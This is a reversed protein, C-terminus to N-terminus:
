LKRKALTQITAHSDLGRVASVEDTTVPQKLAVIALTELAQGSLPKTTRGQKLLAIIETHEPKTELRWRGTLNRLQLGRGLSQLDESLEALLLEVRETELQLIKALSKVSLPRSAAFLLAEIKGKFETPQHNESM